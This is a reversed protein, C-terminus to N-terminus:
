HMMPSIKEGDHIVTMSSPPLGADPMNRIGNSLLPVFHNPSWKGNNLAKANNETMTHSWLIRITCKVDVTPMPTFTRNIISSIEDILGISPCFSRIACRLVNCLAQIEYSESYSENKCINKLAIHVPGLYQLYSSEYYRENQVLEM